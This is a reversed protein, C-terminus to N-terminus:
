PNLRRYPPADNLEFHHDFVSEFSQFVFIKKIISQLTKLIKLSTESEEHVGRDNYKSSIAEFFLGRFEFFM